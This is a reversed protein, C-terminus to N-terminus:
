AASRIFGHVQKRATKAVEHARVVMAAAQEPLRENLREVAADITAEIDDLRENISGMEREVRAVVDDLQQKRAARQEQQMSELQAFWERRRVQVQQVTLVGFGIAIYAADRLAGVVKDDLDALKAADFGSLDFSPFTPLEPM